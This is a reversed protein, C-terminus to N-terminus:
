AVNSSSEDLNRRLICAFVIGVIQLFAFALGVGGVIIINDALFQNLKAVCPKHVNRSCGTAAVCDNGTCAVCQGQTCSNDWDSTQTLGCCTFEGQLERVFTQFDADKDNVQEGNLAKDVADNVWTNLDNRYVVALIGAVFELIVLLGILIAFLLLFLRNEKVAGWCGLFGVVMTFAGAVILVYCATYFFGLDIEGAVVKSIKGDVRLWIGIALIAIGIVWFIFNFIFLLIKIISACCGEAM